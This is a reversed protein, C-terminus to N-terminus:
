PVHEVTSITVDSLFKTENKKFFIFCKRQKLQCDLYSRVEYASWTLPLNFTEAEM